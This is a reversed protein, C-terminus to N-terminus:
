VEILEYARPALIPQRDEKLADLYLEIPECVLGSVEAKTGEAAVWGPLDPVQEGYSTSRREIVIAYKVPIAKSM